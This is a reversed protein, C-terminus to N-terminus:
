EEVMSLLLDHPGVDTGAAGEGVVLQGIVLVKRAEVPAWHGKRESGSRVTWFSRSMWSYVSGSCSGIIGVREHELGPSTMWVM